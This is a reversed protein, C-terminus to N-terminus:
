AAARGGVALLEARLAGASLHLLDCVNLFSCPWSRDDSAVWQYAERYLRRAKTGRGDQHNRLDDIAQWLVAVLLAREPSVTRPACWLHHFQVPLITEPKLWEEYQIAHM